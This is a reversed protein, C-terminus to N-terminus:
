LRGGVEFGYRRPAAWTAQNGIQGDIRIKNTAYLEDAANDVFAAIFFRGHPATYRLSLNVVGTSPQSWTPDDYVNFFVRSQYHYDVRPTLSGWGWLDYLYAASTHLSVDPARPLPNGSQDTGGTPDNPNVSHLDTITADLFATALSLTLGRAPVVDGGIELGLTNAGGANTVVPYLTSISPELVNLQIDQWDYFFGATRLAVRDDLFSAKYGLEYSWVYAPDFPFQQPVTSNFGGATYGRAISGYALMAPLPYWELVFRPTPAHWHASQDFRATQVGNVSESFDESKQDYTYRLGVTASLSPLLLYSVDGFGAISDSALNAARADAFGGPALLASSLDLSQRAWEHQYFIGALWTLRGDTKSALRLEQTLSESWEQPANRLLPVQTADLDLVEDYASDRYATISVLDAWPMTWDLRAQTGWDPIDAHPATDFLVQRPNNPVTGGFQSVAPSGALPAVLKQALFRSDQERAYDGSILLSVDDTPQMAVQLRGAGQALDDIGQQLYLNRSYGDRWAGLGSVRVQVRNGALPLNMAGRVRREDFNGYLFEVEGGPTRTPRRNVIQIVGGAANRGFLTGQPGALVEVRDVDYFDFVSNVPRPRYVDDVYTAVSPDAGTSLLDSGIGRIYPEGNVTNTSFVLNPVLLPLETTDQVGAEDLERGDLATVAIPVAMLPNELRQATVVVEPLKQRPASDEAAPADAGAASAAAPLLTLSLLVLTLRRRARRAAARRGGSGGGFM